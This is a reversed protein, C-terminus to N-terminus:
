DELKGNQLDVLDTQRYGSCPLIENAKRRNETEKSKAGPSIYERMLSYITEPGLSHILQLPKTKFSYSM